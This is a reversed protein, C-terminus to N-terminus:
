NGDSSEEEAEEPAAAEPETRVVSPALSASRRRRSSSAYRRAGQEYALPRGDNPLVVKVLSGGLIRVRLERFSGLFVAHEVLGPLRNTATAARGARRGGAGPPDDGERGRALDIAGQQARLTREAVRLM